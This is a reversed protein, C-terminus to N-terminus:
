RETRPRPHSGEAAAAHGQAQRRPQRRPRVGAHLLATGRAPRLRVAARHAPAAPGGGGGGRGPLPRPRGARRPRRGAGDEVGGGSKVELAPGQLRRGHRGPGIGGPDRLRSGRPLARGSGGCKRGGPPPALRRGGGTTRPTPADRPQGHGPVSGHGASGAPRAAAVGALGPPRRVIGRRLRGAGAGAARALPSPPQGRPGRRGSWPGTRGAVPGPEGVRPTPRAEAAAHRRWREPGCPRVVRAPLRSRSAVARVHSVGPRFWSVSLRCCAGPCCTYGTGFGAAVGRARWIDPSGAWVGPAASSPHCDTLQRDATRQVASRDLPRAALGGSGAVWWSGGGRFAGTDPHRVTVRLLARGHDDVVGTM